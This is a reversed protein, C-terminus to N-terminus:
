YDNKPRKEVWEKVNKIALVNDVVKQLNPNKATLDTKAIFNLYNVMGTFYFDAWTTRKLALHGKNEEAMQELKKLYFPITKSELEPRKKEQISVDEEYAVKALQARFENVTDVASDIEADELDNKGALGVKKAIFRTISISQHLVKGDVELIPMQALPM